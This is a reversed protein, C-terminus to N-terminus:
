HLKEGTSQAKEWMYELLMAVDDSFDWDVEVLPRKRGGNKQTDADLQRQINAPAERCQSSDRDLTVKQGHDASLDWDILQCVPEVGNSQFRMCNVKRRVDCHMLDAKRALFLNLSLETYDKRNIDSQLEKGVYM